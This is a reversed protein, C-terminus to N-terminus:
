VFRVRKGLIEGIQRVGRRGLPKASLTLGTLPGAALAEALPVAGTTSIRNDRLDLVRLTLPFGSRAIAVAGADGIQNKALYLFRVEPFVCDRCMGAVGLDGFSNDDLRLHTLRDWRRVRTIALLDDDTIFNEKLSLRKLSERLPLMPLIAWADPQPEWFLRLCLEELETSAPMDLMADFPERYSKLRLIRLRRFLDSQIIQQIQVATPTLVPPPHDISFEAQLWLSTVNRLNPSNFLSNGDTFGSSMEVGLWTVGSLCPLDIEKWKTKPGLVVTMLETIPALRFATEVANSNARGDCYLRNALGRHINIAFGSNADLESTNHDFCVDISGLKAIHLSMYDRNEQYDVRTQFERPEEVPARQWWRKRQPPQFIPPPHGFAQALPTLWEGGHRLFLEKVRAEVAGHEKTGPRLKALRLHARIFEAQTADGGDELWDAFVLRPLDDAPRAAIAAILAERENM